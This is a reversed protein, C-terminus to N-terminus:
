SKTMSLNPYFQLLIPTIKENLKHKRFVAILLVVQTIDFYKATILNSYIM